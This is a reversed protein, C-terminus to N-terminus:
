GIRVGLSQPGQDRADPRQAHPEADPHLGLHRVGIGIEHSLMGIPNETGPSIFGREAPILDHHVEGVRLCELVHQGREIAEQARVVDRVQLPVHVPVKHLARARRPSGAGMVLRKRDVRKKVLDSTAVGPDIDLSARGAAAPYVEPHKRSGLAHPGGVAVIWELALGDLATKRENQGGLEDPRVDAWRTRVGGPPPVREREAACGRQEAVEPHFPVKEIRGFLVEGPELVRDREVLPETRQEVAPIGDTELVRTLSEQEM